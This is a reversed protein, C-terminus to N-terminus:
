KNWTIAIPVIGIKISTIKGGIINSIFSRVRGVESAGSYTTQNLVPDYMAVVHALSGNTGHGYITSSKLVQSDKSDVMSQPIVSNPGSTAIVHFPSPTFTVPSTSGSNALIRNVNSNNNEPSILYIDKQSTTEHSVIGFSTKDDDVIKVIDGFDVFNYLDGSITINSIDKIQSQSFTTFIPYGSGNTDVSIRFFTPTDSNDLNSTATLNIIDPKNTFIPASSIFIKNEGSSNQSTILYNKGSEILKWVESQETLDSLNILGIENSFNSNFKGNSDYITKIDTGDGKIDFKTKNLEDIDNLFNTNTKIINKAFTEITEKYPTGDNDFELFYKQVKQLLKSNNKVLISLEDLFIQAEKQAM